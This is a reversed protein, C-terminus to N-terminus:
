VTVIKFTLNAGCSLVNRGTLAYIDDCRSELEFARRCQSDLGNLDSARTIMPLLCTRKIHSLAARGTGNFGLVRVYLPSPIMDETTIGLLAYTLLRRLRSMTYRKTKVSELIMQVSTCSRIASYLRNELGEGIDPLLALQGCTMTRLRYLLAREINNMSCPSFEKAHGFIESAEDPVFANISAGSEALQRLYSGSAINGSVSFSDHEAGIRKITEPIISSELASLAKLYEIGLINNPSRFLGAIDNGCLERVAQERAFAFTVGASLKEKVAKGFSANDLAGAARKLLGIDGCESGFFISEACGLANLLSVGGFAFREAGACAFTVPLELVLDAGCMLAARTRTRKDFAAPEGRQTFNGSMCAIICDAGRKRMNDLLYKHGNHFPDFECILSSIVM